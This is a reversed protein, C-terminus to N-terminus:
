LNKPISIDMYDVNPAGKSHLYQLIKLVSYFYMRYTDKTELANITARNMGVADALEEQTLDLYARASRIVANLKM